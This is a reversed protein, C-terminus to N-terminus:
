PPAGRFLFKPTVQFRLLITDASAFCASSQLFPHVTDSEFAQCLPIKFNAAGILAPGNLLFFHVRFDQQDMQM